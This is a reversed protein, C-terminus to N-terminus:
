QHSSDEVIKWTVQVEEDAHPENSSSGAAKWGKMPPFVDDTFSACRQEYSSPTSYYDIDKNTGYEKGPPVLSIFWHHSENKMVCRYLMYRKTIVEGNPTEEDVLRQFSNGGGGTNVYWNHGTLLFLHFNVHTHKYSSYNLLRGPNRRYFTYVGNCVESSGYAGSVTVQCRSM